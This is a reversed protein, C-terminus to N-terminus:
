LVFSSAFKLIKLYLNKLHQQKHQLLLFCSSSSFPKEENM